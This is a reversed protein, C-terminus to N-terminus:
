RPQIILLSMLMRIYSNWMQFNLNDFVSRAKEESRALGIIRMNLNYKLDIDALTELIYRGLRGTAGTILVTTDQYMRWNVASNTIIDLDRKEM